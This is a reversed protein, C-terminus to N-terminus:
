AETQGIGASKQTSCIYIKRKTTRAVDESGGRPNEPGVDPPLFSLFPVTRHGRQLGVYVKEYVGTEVYM